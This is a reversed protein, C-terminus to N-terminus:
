GGRFPNRRFFMDFVCPRNNQRKFYGQAMTLEYLDSFLASTIM